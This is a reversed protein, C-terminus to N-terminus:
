RATSARSGEMAARTGAMDAGDDRTVLRYVDAVYSVGAIERMPKLQEGEFILQEDARRQGAGGQAEHELVADGVALERLLRNNM